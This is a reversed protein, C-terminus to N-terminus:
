FVNFDNCIESLALRQGTRIISMDYNLNFNIHITNENRDVIVKFRMQIEPIKWENTIEFNFKECSSSNSTFNKIKIFM